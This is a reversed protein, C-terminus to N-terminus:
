LRVDVPHYEYSIQEEVVDADQTASINEKTEKDDNEKDTVSTETKEKVKKSNETNDKESADKLKEGAQALSALQESTAKQATKKADALETEKLETNSSGGRGGDLQMEVELVNARNEMKKATNGQVNAQKISVDASVMATMSDASMGVNLSGNQQTQNKIGMLDDFSSEEKKKEREERKVEIQHQRLQIQLESIQKQIDQRKKMKTDAPMDANASIEKLDNQLKEIQQQLSKSEPDMQGSKGATMGATNQSAGTGGIGNINMMEEMGFRGTSLLAFGFGLSSEAILFNQLAETYIEM